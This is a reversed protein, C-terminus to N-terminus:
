HEWIQLVKLTGLTMPEEEPQVMGVGATNQTSICIGYKERILECRDEPATHEKEVRRQRM